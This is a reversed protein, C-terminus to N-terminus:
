RKANKQRWVATSLLSASLLCHTLSPHRVHLVPGKLSSLFYVFRFLFVIVHNAEAVM